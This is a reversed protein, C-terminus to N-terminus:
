RALEADIKTMMYAWKAKQVGLLTKLTARIESLLACDPARGTSGAQGGSQIEDLLKSSQTDYDAITQDQVLPAAEALFQDHTWGRKQRLEGLRAQFKPKNDLNLDRLATAADEVVTEFDTRSCAPTQAAAPLLLAVTALSLLGLGVLSAWVRATAM